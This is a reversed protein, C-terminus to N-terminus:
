EKKMNYFSLFDNGHARFFGEQIEFNKMFNKLTAAFEKTM